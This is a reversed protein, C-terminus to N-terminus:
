VRLRIAKFTVLPLRAVVQKVALEGRKIELLLSIVVYSVKLARAPSMPKRIISDLRYRIRNSSVFTSRETALARLLTIMASTGVIAMSM